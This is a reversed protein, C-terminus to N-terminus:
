VHGWRIENKFYIIIFSNMYNHFFFFFFFMFFSLFHFYTTIQPEVNSTWHEFALDARNPKRQLILFAYIFWEYKVVYVFSTNM